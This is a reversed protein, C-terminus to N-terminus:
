IHSNSNNVEKSPSASIINQTTLCQSNSTTLTLNQTTVIHQLPTSASLRPSAFHLRHRAIGVTMTQPLRPSPTHLRQHQITAM